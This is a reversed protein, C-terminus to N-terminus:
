THVHGLWYKLGDIIEIFM